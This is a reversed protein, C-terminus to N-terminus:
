RPPSSASREGAAGLAAQRCRDQGRGGPEVVLPSVEVERGLVRSRGRRRGATAPPRTSRPLLQQRAVALSAEPGRGPVAGAPGAAAGVAGSEPSALTVAFGRRRIAAPLADLRRGCWKPRSASRALWAEITPGDSWPWSRRGRAPGAAAPSHGRRRRRARGPCRGESVPAATTSWRGRGPGVPRHAGGPCRAAPGRLGLAKYGRRAAEGIADVPASRTASRARSGAM